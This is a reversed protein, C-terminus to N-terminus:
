FHPSYIKKCINYGNGYTTTVFIEKNTICKGYASNGFLKMTEAAQIKDNNADGGHRADSVEDAFKSIFM